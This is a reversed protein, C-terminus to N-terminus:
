LGGKAIEKWLGSTVVARPEPTFADPRVLKLEAIQGEAGISYTVDSILMDGDIGVAPVSVRTIRNITWLDGGKRQRWGQVSIEATEARAARVRAEWDARRLADAKTLGQDPRIIILRSSPLVGTDTADAQVVMSPGGEDYFGGVQTMIRYTRFREESSYEMTASLVNAGQALATARQTSARTLVIGGRGDSVVLVGAVGAARLIADAVSDGPQVALTVKPVNLGAQVSVSIGHPRALEAAFHELTGDRRAAGTVIASCDVLEAARDRGVVSLRRSTADISIRRRSVYGDIVVEGGIAVQCASGEAIPWPKSAAGWRDSVALDFSGAMSSISRTVEISEWGAYRLGGVILEIEDAM